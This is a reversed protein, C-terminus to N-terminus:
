VELKTPLTLHTYSVTDQNTETFIESNVKERTFAQTVRMGSLSEHLYGNMNSIKARVTQWNKRMKRKLGFLILLLFPLTSMSILTLKWEVSFMLAILLLLTVCDILVNVIGNTLLDMLSNVDNIIRVMIKGASRTDFFSFSLDQVHNFLHQRLDAIAKRGATDLIRARYRICLASALAVVVMSVILVPFRELNGATIDDVAISMLYPLALSAVAAIVMLVCAVAVSWKYPKLYSFLRLLQQKNFPREIVEDDIVRLRPM